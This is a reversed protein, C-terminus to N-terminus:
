DSKMNDHGYSIVRAIQWQAGTRKWVQIFKYTGSPKEPEGKNTHYFRHVGIEVAGYNKIPYVELTSKVLERRIHNGRTCMERFAQMEIAIGVSLGGIDHYFELDGTFYKKYTISDCHNFANFLTSDAQLIEACLDAPKSIDTAPHGSTVAMVKQAFVYATFFLSVFIFVLAKNLM